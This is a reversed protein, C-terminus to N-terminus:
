SRLRPCEYKQMTLLCAKLEALREEITGPRIQTDIAMAMINIMDDDVKTLKYFVDLKDQITRADLFEEVIPDLSVNNDDM